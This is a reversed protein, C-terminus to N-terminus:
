TKNGSMLFHALISNVIKEREEKDEYKSYYAYLYDFEIFIEQINNSEEREIVPFTVSFNSSWPQDKKPRFVKGEIRMQAFAITLWHNLILSCPIDLAAWRIKLDDRRQEENNRCILQHYFLDRILHIKISIGHLNGGGPGGSYTGGDALILSQNTKDNLWLSEFYRIKEQNGEELLSSYFILLASIQYNSDDYKRVKVKEKFILFKRAEEEVSISCLSEHLILGYLKEIHGNSNLFENISLLFGKEDYLCAGSNRVDNKTQSVELGEVWAFQLENIEGILENINLNLFKERNHKKLINLYHLSLDKILQRGEVGSLLNGVQLEGM